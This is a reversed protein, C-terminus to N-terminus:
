PLSLEIVVTRFLGVPVARNGFPLPPSRTRERALALGRISGACDRGAGVVSFSFEADLVMAGRHTRFCAADVRQRDGHVNTRRGAPGQSAATCASRDPRGD